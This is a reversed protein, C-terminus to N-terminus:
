PIMNDLVGEIQEQTHGKSEYFGIIEKKTEKKMMLDKYAGVSLLCVTTFVVIGVVIVIWRKVNKM